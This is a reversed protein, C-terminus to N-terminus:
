FLRKCGSASVAEARKYTRQGESFGARDDRVELRGVKRRLGDFLVELEICCFPPENGAPTLIM